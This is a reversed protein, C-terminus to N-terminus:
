VHEFGYRQLGVVALKGGHVKVAPFLAQLRAHVVEAGLRRDVRDLERDILLRQAALTVGVRLAWLGILTAEAAASSRCVRFTQRQPAVGPQLEVPVRAGARRCSALCQVTM